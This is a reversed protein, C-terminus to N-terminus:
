RSQRDHWVRLIQVTKGSVQYVLTYPLNVAVLERTAPILGEKGSDPFEKLRESAALLRSAVGRAATPDDFGIFQRIQALDHLAPVTWEINMRAASARRRNGM